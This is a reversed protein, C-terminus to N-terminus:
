KLKIYFVIELLLQSGTLLMICPMTRQGDCSRELNRGMIAVYDGKKWRQIHQEESVKKWNHLQTWTMDITLMHTCSEVNDM